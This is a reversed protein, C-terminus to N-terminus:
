TIFIFIELKQFVVKGLIVNGNISSKANFIWSILSKKFNKGKIAKM